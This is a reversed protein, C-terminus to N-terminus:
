TSNECDCRSIVNRRQQMTTGKTYKRTNEGQVAVQDWPGLPSFSLDVRHLLYDMCDATAAPAKQLDVVPVQNGQGPNHGEVEAIDLQFVLAYGQLCPHYAMHDM